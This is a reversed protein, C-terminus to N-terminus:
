ECKFVHKENILAGDISSLVLVRYVAQKIIWAYMVYTWEIAMLPPPIDLVSQGTCIWLYHYLLSYQIGVLVAVNFVDYVHTKEKRENWIRGCKAVAFRPRTCSTHLLSFPMAGIKTEWLVKILCCFVCVFETAQSRSLVIGVSRSGRTPSTLALKLHYITDSPWRLPDGRGYERSQLGSGSNNRGLLEVITSVLSLPGWELGV